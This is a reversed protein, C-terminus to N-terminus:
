STSQVHKIFRNKIQNCDRKVSHLTMKLNPRSLLLQQWLVQKSHHLQKNQSGAAAGKQSTLKPEDHMTCSFFYDVIEASQRKLALAPRENGSSTVTVRTKSLLLLSKTKYM